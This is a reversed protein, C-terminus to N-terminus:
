EFTPPTDDLLGRAMLYDSLPFHVFPSYTASTADIGRLTEFSGAGMVCRGVDQNAGFGCAFALGKLAMKLIRREYTKRGADKKLGRVNIVAAFGPITLQPPLDKSEVFYVAMLRGGAPHGKATGAVLAAIDLSPAAELAHNIQIVNQLENTVTDAFLAEEVAGGVNVFAIHNKALASATMAAVAVAATIIAKKM